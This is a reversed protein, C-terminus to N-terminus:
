RRNRGVFRLSSDELWRRLLGEGTVEVADGTVRVDAQSLQLALTDRLEVIRADRAAIVVEAARKELAKM